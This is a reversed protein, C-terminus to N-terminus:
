AGVPAAARDILARLALGTLLTAALAGSAGFMHFGREADVIVQSTVLWGLSWAAGTVAAWAAALRAGGGLLSGQAAGVATGTVLGTLVLDAVEAGSGTLVAAVAAGAASAAATRGIWRRTMGAGRLALWQAAGIASGVLLGGLAAPLPGESSGITEIAIWGSIPFALFTPLWSKFTM